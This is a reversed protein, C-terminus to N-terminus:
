TMSTELLPSNQTGSCEELATRLTEGSENDGHSSGTVWAVYGDPRVLMADLDGPRALAEQARTFTM